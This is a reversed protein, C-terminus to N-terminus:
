QYTAWRSRCEKGVRREESRISISSHMSAAFWHAALKKNRLLIGDKYRTCAPGLVSFSVVKCDNKPSSPKDNLVPVSSGVGCSKWASSALTAFRGSERRILVTM